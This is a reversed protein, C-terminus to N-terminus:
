PLRFARLEGDTPAKAQHMRAARDFASMNRIFDDSASLLEAAETRKAFVTAVREDIKVPNLQSDAVAISTAGLMLAVAWCLRSM